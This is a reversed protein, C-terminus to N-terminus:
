ILRVVKDHLLIFSRNNISVVSLRLFENSAQDIDGLLSHFLVGEFLERHVITRCNNNTTSYSCLLKDFSALEVTEGDERVKLSAGIVSMVVIERTPVVLM